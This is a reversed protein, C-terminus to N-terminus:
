LVHAQISIYSDELVIAIRIQNAYGAKQQTQEVGKPDGQNRKYYTKQYGAKRRIGERFHIEGKFLLEKLKGDDDTGDGPACKRNNGLHENRHDSPGTFIAYQRQQDGTHQAAQAHHEEQAQEKVSDGTRQDFCRGDISCSKELAEEFHQEGQCLWGKHGLENKTKHAAVVIEQSGQQIQLIGGFRYCQLQIQAINSTQERVEATLIDMGCSCNQSHEWQDNDIAECLFVKDLTNRGTADFFLGSTSEHFHFSNERTDQCQDHYKGAGSHCATFSGDCFVFHGIVLSM